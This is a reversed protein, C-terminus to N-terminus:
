ARRRDMKEIRRLHDGSLTNRKVRSFPGFESASAKREHELEAELGVDDAESSVSSPSRSGARARTRM